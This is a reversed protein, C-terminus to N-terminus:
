RVNSLSIKYVIKMHFINALKATAKKQLLVVNTNRGNDTTRVNYINRMNLKGTHTHTTHVGIFYICPKSQIRYIYYINMLNGTNSTFRISENSNETKKKKTIKERNKM